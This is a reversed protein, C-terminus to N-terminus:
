FDAAMTKARDIAEQRRASTVEPGGHITPEIIISRIDGFGMFGFVLEM